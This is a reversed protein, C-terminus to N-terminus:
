NEQYRQARERNAQKSENEDEENPTGKRAWLSGRTRRIGSRGSGIRRNVRMRM